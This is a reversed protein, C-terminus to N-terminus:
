TQMIHNITMPELVYHVRVTCQRAILEPKKLIEPEETYLVVQLIAARSNPILTTLARTNYFLLCYDTHGLLLPAPRVLVLSNRRM